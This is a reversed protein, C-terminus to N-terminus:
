KEEGGNKGELVELGGTFIMKLLEWGDRKVEFVIDSQIAFEQDGILSISEGGAKIERPMSEELEIGRVKAEAPLLLIDKKKVYETLFTKVDFLGFYINAERATLVGSVKLSDISVGFPFRYQINEFVVQRPVYSEAWGRVMKTGYTGVFFALSLGAIFGAGLIFLGLVRLFKFFNRM